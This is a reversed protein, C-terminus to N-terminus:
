PKTTDPFKDDDFCPVCNAPHTGTLVDTGAQYIASTSSPVYELTIPVYENPDVANLDSFTGNAASSTFFAWNLTPGGAVIAGTADIRVLRFTVNHISNDGLPADIHLSVSSPL